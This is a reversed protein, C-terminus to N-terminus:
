KAAAEMSAAELHLPRPRHWQQPRSTFRYAVGRTASQAALSHADGVLKPVNSPHSQLRAAVPRDSNGATAITTLISEMETLSAGPPLRSAPGKARTDGRLISRSNMVFPHEAGSSETTSLWNDQLVIPCTSPM